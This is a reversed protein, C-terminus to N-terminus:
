LGPFIIGTNRKIKRKAKNVKKTAKKRTTRRVTRRRPTGGFLNAGSTGGGFINISPQSRKVRKGGKTVVARTQQGTFLGGFGATTKKSSTIGLILADFSPTYGFKRKGSKGKTGRGGFQVFPTFPIFGRQGTVVPVTTETFTDTKTDTTPKTDQKTPITPKETFPDSIPESGIVIKGEKTQPRPTTGITVTSPKTAVAVPISTTVPTRKARRGKKTPSTDLVNTTPAETRIGPVYERGKATQQVSITPSVVPTSKSITKEGIGFLIDTPKEPPDLISATTEIASGLKPKTPSVASITGTITGASVAGVTAAIATGKVTPDQYKAKTEAIYISSAEGAGAPATGLFGRFFAKTKPLVTTPKAYKSLLAVGARGAGEASIGAVLTGRLSSEEAATRQRKAAAVGAKVKETPLGASLLEGRVGHTFAEEEGFAGLRTTPVAEVAISKVTGYPKSEIAKIEQRYGSRIAKTFLETDEIAAKQEKPATKESYKVGAYTTAQTVTGGGLIFSGINSIGGLVDSAKKGLGVKSAIQTTRAAAKAGVLKLSAGVAGGGVGFILGEKTSERLRAQEKGSEKFTVEGKRLGTYFDIGTREKKPLQKSQGAIQSYPTGTLGVRQTEKKSKELRHKLKRQEIKESVKQAFEEKQREEEVKKQQALAKNRAAEVTTEKGVVQRVRGSSDPQYSVERQVGGINKSSEQGTRQDFTTKSADIDQEVDAPNRTARVVV